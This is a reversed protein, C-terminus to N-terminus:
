IDVEVTLKGTHINNFTFLIKFGTVSYEMIYLNRDTGVALTDSLGFRKIATCNSIKQQYFVFEHIFDMKSDFSVAGIVGEQTGGAITAGALFVLDENKSLEM